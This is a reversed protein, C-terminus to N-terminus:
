LSSVVVTVLHFEGTEFGNFISVVLGDPRRSPNRGGVIAGGEEEGAGEVLGDLEPLGVLEVQVAGVGAVAEADDRNSSMRGTENSGGSREIAENADKLDIGVGSDGSELRRRRLDPM